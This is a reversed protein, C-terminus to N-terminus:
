RGPPLDFRDDQREESRRLLEDAREPRAQIDPTLLQDATLPQAVAYPPPPLSAGEPPRLQGRGGCGALLVLILLAAIPRTM